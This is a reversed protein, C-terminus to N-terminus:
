RDGLRVRPDVFAYLIDALLQGVVTMVSFMLLLGMLLPYDRSTISEFFMRGIGPWNFIQEIIVAGSVLSPLMLGLSTILPILTNRFAHKFLIKAEGLGKAKATRIYDQRIVEMLNANIFRTDYALSGYTYCTVPLVLHLLLDKMKGATSLQDYDDSVMGFLPVLGWKVAVWMQLFLAAVFSPFSYMVYMGTTLSREQFTGSKAAAFLGLPVAFGYALVLATISLYLTPGLREGILRAVPKKHAFSSGMDGVALRKLWDIYAVYFPKDLGYLKELQKRQELSITKTPDLEAMNITLPTGPMFRLLAYQLFTICLLTVIGIMLRRILFESM